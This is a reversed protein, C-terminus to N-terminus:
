RGHISRFPISCDYSKRAWACRHLSLVDNRTLFEDQTRTGAEGRRQGDPACERTLAGPRFVVNQLESRDAVALREIRGANLSGNIGGGVTAPAAHNNGPALAEEDTGQIQLTADFQM